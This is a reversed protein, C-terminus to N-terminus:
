SGLVLIAELPTMALKLLQVLAPEARIYVRRAPPATLMPDLILLAAIGLALMAIVLPVDLPALPVTGMSIEVTRIRSVAMTVITAFAPQITATWVTYPTTSMPTPRIVREARAQPALMGVMAMQMRVAFVVVALETQPVRLVM